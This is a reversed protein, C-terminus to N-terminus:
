NAPTFGSAKVVPAWKERDAKMIAALEASTTGTPELGIKEFRERSAPDRMAAAIIASLRNVVDAPTKAPAVVAYWGYGEIDFGQEKFTPVDPAVASRQQGTTALVRLKGAKHLEAVDTLTTVVMPLQGAIVDNIAPAPGSYPVHQLKIGSLEAFSVAFFHPLSGAAPTSYTGRSPDNMVKAVFDKLSVANVMPGTAMGNEFRAVQSVPVLDIFPDYNLKPYVLPFVSLLAVTVYGLTNGDPAADAVGRTGTRGGAGVRNEVIFTRGLGKSLAEAVFRASADGIGGPAYPYILRGTTPSSQALVATSGVFLYACAAAVLRGPTRSM